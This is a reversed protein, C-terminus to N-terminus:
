DRGPGAAPRGTGRDRPPVAPGAGAALLQAFAATALPQVPGGALPHVAAVQERHEQPHGVVLRGPGRGDRPQQGGLVVQEAPEGPLDGGVRAGGGAEAAVPELAAGPFAVAGGGRGRVGGRGPGGRGRERGAKGRGGAARRGAVVRRGGR